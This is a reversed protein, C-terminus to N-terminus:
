MGKIEVRNGGKQKAANLAAEGWSILENLTRTQEDTQTVGISVTFKALSGDELGFRIGEICRRMREAIKYARSAETEPLLLIFEDGGMRGLLDVKRVKTMCNASLFRLVQDGVGQGYAENIKKFHDIDVQIIALPKKIRQFRLFERQALQLFGRRNLLNTLPDTTALRQVEQQLQVNNLAATAMASFDELFDADKLEFSDPWFAILTLAGLLKDELLLPVALLAGNQEPADPTLQVPWSDSSLLRKEQVAQRTFAAVPQTPQLYLTTCHRKERRCRVAQGCCDVPQGQPLFLVVEEVVPIALLAAELIKQALDEFTHAKLLTRNATHLAQLYQSHALEEVYLRAMEISLSARDALDQFYDQDPAQFPARDQARMLIMAGLVKHHVQLPVALLEGVRAQDLWEALALPVLDQFGVKESRQLIRAQRSKLVEGVGDKGGLSISHLNLLEVLRTQAEANPHYAAAPELARGDAGVMWIMVADQFTESIRQAITDLVERYNLGAEVFSKSLEGLLRLKDERQKLAQEMQKRDIAYRITREVVQPDLDNKDLYYFAGSEMARRDMEYNGLGSLLIMPAQIDARVVAQILQIGQDPGLFYDILIADYRGAKLTQIAEPITKAWVPEAQVQSLASLISQIMAYDDEDDDVVLVRWHTITDLGKM